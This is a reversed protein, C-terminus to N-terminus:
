PQVYESVILWESDVVTATRLYPMGAYGFTNYVVWEHPFGVVSSGPDVGAPINGHVTTYCRDGLKKSQIAAHHYLSRALAKRINTHYDEDSIMVSKTQEHLMDEVILKLQKRIRLVEDLVSRSLFHKLCWRDIYAQAMGRRILNVYAHLANLQSIHDSLPNFWRRHVLDADFRQQHPRAFISHQTSSLAALAVMEESCGLDHAEVIANHWTPHVPLRAAM